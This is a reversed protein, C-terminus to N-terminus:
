PISDHYTQRSPCTLSLRSTPLILVFNESGCLQIHFGQFCLYLGSSYCGRPRGIVGVGPTATNCDTRARRRWAGWGPEWPLSRRDAVQVRRSSLFFRLALGGLDRRGLDCAVRGASRPYVAFHQQSQNRCAEGDTRALSKRPLLSVEQATQRM